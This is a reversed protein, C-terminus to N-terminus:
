QECSGCQRGGKVPMRPKLVTTRDV